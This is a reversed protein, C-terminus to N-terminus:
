KSSNLIVRQIVTGQETTFGILYLGAPNTGLDITLKSQAEVTEYHKVSLTQGLANMVTIDLKNFTNGTVDINLEGTTPNPYLTFSSSLAANYDELGVTVNITECTDKAPRNFPADNFLNQVELCVEYEGSASFPYTFNQNANIGGDSTTWRWETPDYLSADTFIYQASSNGTTFSFRPDPETGVIVTRTATGSNGVNDTATYTVTYTGRSNVSVATAADSTLSAVGSCDDASPLVDNYAENLYVYVTTNTTGFDITPASVDPTVIVTRSESVTSNGDTVTYTITYTGEVSTDLTGTVTPNMFGLCNDYASFGPDEYSTCIESFVTDNGVLVLEPAEDIVIFTRTDTGTNGFADTASYTATYTGASGPNNPGTNGPGGTIVVNASIDGDVNDIATAGPDTYFQCIDITITDPGNITVTPPTADATSVVNVIRVRENAANGAADSVNYYVEYTGVVNPNVASTNVNINPTINGDVNDFATAGPDTYIPSQIITFPNSGTLSIIPPTVDADQIDATTDYDFGDGYHFFAPDEALVTNPNLEGIVFPIELVNGNMLATPAFSGFLAADQFFTGATQNEVASALGTTVDYAITFLNPAINEGGAINPDSDHWGFAVIKGDPSKTAQPRNDESLDNTADLTGRLTQVSDLYIAIWEAGKAAGEQRTIDYVKLNATTIAYDNSGGAVTVVHPNGNVDVVIDLDFATQPFTNVPDPLGAQVNAFRKLNVEIPGNWTLGGDTSNYFIPNLANEGDNTIDGTFVIWGYQGSPDFDMNLSTGQPNNDSDLQLDPNFSEHVAWSITKSAADFVGRYLLISDPTTGSASAWDVAWFTGPTSECLGHAILVEGNNFRTTDSTYTSANGDMRATGYFFGDWSANSGGFPLWSGLYTLYAQNPNTNGTPNFISVNPYRGALDANNGAPNLVANDVSWTTGGDLSFDYSYQGINSGPISDPNARHIFVVSNIDNDAAVCNVSGDIITYVNGASGIEQFTVARNSGVAPIQRLNQQYYSVTQTYPVSSPTSYDDTYCNFPKMRAETRVPAQAFVISVLSSTLLLLFFRKM